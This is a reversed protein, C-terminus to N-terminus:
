QPRNWEYPLLKAGYSHNQDHAFTNGDWAPYTLSTDESQFVQQPVSLGYDVMFMLAVIVVAAAATVGLDWARPHWRARLESSSEATKPIGAMLRGKLAHPVEVEALSRLEKGLSRLTIEERKNKKGYRM